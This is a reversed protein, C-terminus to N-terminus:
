GAVKIVPNAAAGVTGPLRYNSAEEHIADTLVALAEELAAQTIILPPAFKVTQEWAGVPAFLLVGKRFCREVIAHALAPAPERTGPKIMQLSGMLGRVSTRGVIDPYSVQMALLAGMLVPELAVANELLRDEVLRDLSANAAACCVPNAAHSSTLSDFTLKDLLHPKGIVASLPLSNSLGMGCCILDPVIDYHEFGWFKGTRGFGTHSEDCCLLVDNEHCWTALEHIYSTSAFDPGVGHCTDLLVGAIDEPELGREHLTEAFTEFGTLEQWYSELLPIPIFASDHIDDFDQPTELSSGTAFHGNFTLMGTKRRGGVQRGHARALQIICAVAESGSSLLVAKSLGAPALQTLREALQAREECPFLGNCILGSDVQDIIAQRIEPGAHASHATLAGGSCDIWRNGYSDYITFDEACEWVLPPTAALCSPELQHLRQLIPVSAPHPIPSAITRHRTLVFPVEVPESSFFYRM